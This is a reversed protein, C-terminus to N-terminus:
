NKAKKGKRSYLFYVLFSLASLLITIFLSFLFMPSRPDHISEGMITACIMGPLVGLSSGVIYSVFPIRSAGLYMGVIDSPLCSTIRLFFSIFFPNISPSLFKKIKPYREILHQVTESGSFRGVGYPLALCIVMGAFNVALALAPSFLHGGAIQLVIIPFIISISKAAYLLLLLVAALLPKEPMYSLVSQVTIDEGYVILLLVAAACLIFPVAGVIYLKRKKKM